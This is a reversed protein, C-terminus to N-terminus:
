VPVVVRAPPPSIKLPVLVPLPSMVSAAPVVKSTLPTNVPVLRTETLVVPETRFIPCVLPMAFATSKPAEALAFIPVTIRVPPPM